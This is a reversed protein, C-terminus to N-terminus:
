RIEFSEAANKRVPKLKSRSFIRCWLLFTAVFRNFPKKLFISLLSFFGLFISGTAAVSNTVKSLVKQRQM